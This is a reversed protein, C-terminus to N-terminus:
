WAKEIKFCNGDCIKRDNKYYEYLPSPFCEALCIIEYDKGSNISVVNNPRKVIKIDTQPKNFFLLGQELKLKEFAQYLEDIGIAKSLMFNLMSSAPNSDNEIRKLTDARLQIRRRTTKITILFLTVCFYFLLKKSM